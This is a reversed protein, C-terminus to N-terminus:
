KKRVPGFMLLPLRRLKCTIVDFAMLALLGAFWWTHYVNYKEPPVFTGVSSAIAIALFLYINFRVSRFPKIWRDPLMLGFSTVCFLLIFFRWNFFYQLVLFVDKM